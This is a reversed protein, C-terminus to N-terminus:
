SSPPASSLSSLSAGFFFILFALLFAVLPPPAVELPAGGGDGEGKHRQVTGSPMLKAGPVMGFDASTFIIVSDLALTSPFWTRYRQPPAAFNVGSSISAILPKRSSSSLMLVSSNQQM